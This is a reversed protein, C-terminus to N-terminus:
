AHVKPGDEDADAHQNSGDRMAVLTLSDLIIKAGCKPCVIGQWYDLDERHKMWLRASSCNPCKFSLELGKRQLRDLGYKEINNGV